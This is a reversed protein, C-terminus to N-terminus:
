TLLARTTESAGAYNRDRWQQVGLRIRYVLPPILTAYGDKSYNDDGPYWRIEPDLIVYPNKPFDPTLAM